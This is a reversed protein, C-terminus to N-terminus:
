MHLSNSLTHLSNMGWRCSCLIASAWSSCTFKRVEQQIGEEREAWNHWSLLFIRVVMERRRWQRRSSFHLAGSKQLNWDKKYNFFTWIRISQWIEANRGLSIEMRSTQTLTRNWKWILKGFTEKAACHVLHNRITVVSEELRLHCYLNVLQLKLKEEFFTEELLLALMNSQKAKATAAWYISWTTKTQPLEALLGTACCEANEKAECLVDAFNLNGLDTCTSSLRLLSTLSSRSWPLVFCWSTVDRGRRFGQWVAGKSAIHHCCLLQKAPESLIIKDQLKCCAVLLLHFGCLLHISSLYVWSVGATM